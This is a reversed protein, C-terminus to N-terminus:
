KTSPRVEITSESAGDFPKEMESPPPPPQSQADTGISRRTVDLLHVWPYVTPKSITTKTFCKPRTQRVLNTVIFLSPKLLLAKIVELDCKLRPAKTTTM